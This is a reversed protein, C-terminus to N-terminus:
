KRMIEKSQHYESLVKRSRLVNAQKELLVVTDRAVELANLTAGLPSIDINRLAVVEDVESFESPLAPAATITVTNQHRKLKEDMDEFLLVNTQIISTVMFDALDAPTLAINTSVIVENSNTFHAYTM